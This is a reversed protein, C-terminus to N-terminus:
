WSMMVNKELTAIYYVIKTTTFQVLMVSNIVIYFFDIKEM